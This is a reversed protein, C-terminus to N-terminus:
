IASVLDAYTLLDVFVSKSGHGLATMLMKVFVPFKKASGTKQTINEVDAASSVYLPGKTKM